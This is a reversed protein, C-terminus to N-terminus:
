RSQHKVSKVGSDARHKVQCHINWKSFGHCVALEIFYSVINISTKGLWDFTQSPIEKEQKPCYVFDFM